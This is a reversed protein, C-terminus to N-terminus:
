GRNRGLIKILPRVQEPPVGEASSGPLFNHPSMFIDPRTGSENIERSNQVAAGLLDHTVRHSVMHAGAQHTLGNVYRYAPTRNLVTHRDKVRVLAALVRRLPEQVM